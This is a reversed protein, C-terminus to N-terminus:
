EFRYVHAALPGFRDEIVGGRVEVARNEGLVRVEQVGKLEPSSVRATTNTTLANVAILLGGQSLMKLRAEVRAEKPSAEVAVPVDQGEALLMPQLSRLEAIVRQHAEWMEPVDPTALWKRKHDGFWWWCLGSTGRVVAMLANARLVRADPQFKSEDIPEDAKLRKTQERDYSHVIAMLPSDGIMERHSALRDAVFETTRYVMSWYVDYCKGYVKPSNGIALTVIVPHDPDLARILEYYRKLNKPSVYQHSLDPEDFLYWAFLGPHDRLAAIRRAVMGSNGQVLGNGSGNGRDFGVFARLGAAHVADLYRRAAEDDQSSEWTYIHVLDFGAEKVRALDEERVQYIGLPLEHKEGDFVGRERTWVLTRPARRGHVIWTSAESTNGKRDAIRVTVKHAGIPWGRTPQVGRQTDTGVIQRHAEERGDVSLTLSTLDAGSEDRAAVALAATPSTFSQPSLAIEPGTTDADQPASQVFSWVTTAPEDDLGVRWFWRGPALKQEPVISPEDTDAQILADAFNPAACLQARYLLATQDPQWCLRPRNDALTAGDLPSGLVASRRCEYLEVDDFWATGLGRLGLFIIAYRAGPQAVVDDVRQVHWGKTGFAGTSYRGPALWKGDADAWEVILVAGVSRMGLVTAERVDEGRVMARARYRTGPKVPVRQTLYIGREGQSKVVLKACQKGPPRGEEVIQANAPHQWGALPQEDDFSANEVPLQVLTRARQSFLKARADAEDDQFRRVRLRLSLRADLPKKGDARLCAILRLHKQALRRDQFLWRGATASMDFRWEHRPTNFALPGTLVRTPYQEEYIEAEREAFRCRIASGPSQVSDPPVLMALEVPGAVSVHMQTDWQLEDEGLSLRMTVQAKGPEEKTWLLARGDQEAVQCQALTFRHRKYNPGFITFSSQALITTGYFRISKIGDDTYHVRWRGHQLEGSWVTVTLCCGAWAVASLNAPRM